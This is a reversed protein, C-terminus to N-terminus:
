KVGKQTMQQLPFAILIVYKVTHAHTRTCPRTSTHMRMRAHLRAIEARLAYADYKTVNNTAGRDGCYKEVNDCLRCSKRFFTISCLIHTKIKEAVKAQFM